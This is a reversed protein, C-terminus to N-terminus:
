AANANRVERMKERYETTDHPVLMPIGFAVVPMVGELAQCLGHAEASSFVIYTSQEAGGNTFTKNLGLGFASAPEVIHRFSIRTMGTLSKHYVGRGEPGIAECEGRLVQLILSLDTFNLKVCIGHEWDFRAFTPNPGSRDAVVSQKAMRLMICGDSDDHAPHLDMSVACGTGKMNQHYFALKPRRPGSYGTTRPALNPANNAPAAFAAGAIENMTNTYDM